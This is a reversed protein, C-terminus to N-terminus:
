ARRLLRRPTAGITSRMSRCFHSQDAFGASHAAGAISQGSAIAAIALNLMASRRFSSPPIGFWHQFARAFHARHVGAARALMEIRTGAPDNSLQERARMLWLPPRGRLSETEIGALLDQICDGVDRASAAGETLVWHLLTRQASTLNRHVWGKTAARALRDEVDVSLILAGQRGFDVEHRIEHPRLTLSSAFGFEDRGASRERIAGAVVISIHAQEHSHAPQRLGPPYFSLRARTGAAALLLRQTSTSRRQAPVALDDHPHKRIM